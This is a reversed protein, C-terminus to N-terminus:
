GEIGRNKDRVIVYVAEGRHSGLGTERLELVVSAGVIRPGPTPVAEVLVPDLRSHLRDLGHPRSHGPHWPPHSPPTLALLPSIGM